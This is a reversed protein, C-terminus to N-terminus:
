RFGDQRVAARGRAVRLVRVPRRRRGPRLPPLREQAVSPARPAARRPALRCLPIRSSSGPM